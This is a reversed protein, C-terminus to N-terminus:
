DGELHKKNNEKKKKKVKIFLIVTSINAYNDKYVTPIVELLCTEFTDTNKICIAVNTEQYGATKEETIM